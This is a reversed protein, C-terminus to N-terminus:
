PAGLSRSSMITRSLQRTWRLERIAWTQIPSREGIPAIPSLDTGGIADMNVVQRAALM